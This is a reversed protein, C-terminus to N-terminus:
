VTNILTVLTTFFSIKTLYLFLAKVLQKIIWNVVFGFIITCIQMFNDQIEEVTVEKSSIEKVLNINKTFNKMFTEVTYM